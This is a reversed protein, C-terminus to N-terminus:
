GASVLTVVLEVEDRLGILGLMATYPTIGYDSVKFRLRATAELGRESRRVTVKTEIPKSIGHLTLVGKVTGEGRESISSSTTEFRITPFKAADLQTDSKMTADASKRDGAGVAPGVRYKTRLADEDLALSAVDVTVEASVETPSPQSLTGRFSTARVLHDHAVAQATGRKWVLVVLESKEVDVPAANATASVVLAVVAARM